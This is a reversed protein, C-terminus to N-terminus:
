YIKKSQTKKHTKLEDLEVKLEVNRARYIGYNTGITKRIEKENMKKYKDYTQLESILSM